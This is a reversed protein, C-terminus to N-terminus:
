REGELAAVFAEKFARIKDDVVVTERALAAGEALTEFGAQDHDLTTRVWDTLRERGLQRVSGIECRFRGFGRGAMAGLTVPYIESNFAQLAFLLMGLEPDTLNQGVITGTFAVGAPVAEFNYLKQDAATGRVPDIAVSKLIVTQRQPDWHLLAEQHGPKGAAATDAGSAFETDWVDIKGAARPSGFLLHLWTLNKRAFEDDEWARKAEDGEPHYHKEDRLDAIDAEELHAFLRQLYGHLAGKLSSGPIVPKGDAGSAVLSFQPPEKAGREEQDKKSLPLRERNQDVEGTGLHFPSRTTLTFDIRVRNLFADGRFHKEFAM